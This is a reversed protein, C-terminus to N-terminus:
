VKGENRLKYPYGGLTNPNKGEFTETLDASKVITNKAVFHYASILNSIAQGALTPTTTPLQCEWM